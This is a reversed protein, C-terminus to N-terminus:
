YARIIYICNLGPQSTNFNIQLVARNQSNDLVTNIPINVDSNISSQPQLNSTDFTVEIEDHQHPEIVPNFGISPTNASFDYAPHSNLTGYNTNVGLDPYFNTYGTPVTVTGGNIGYSVTRGSNLRPDQLSGAIPTKHVSQPFLNVPPNESWCSALTRGAQGSGFGSRSEIDAWTHGRTMEFNLGYVDGQPGPEVDQIGLGFKYTIFDWPIVGDGPRFDPFRAITEYSGSHRHARLHNRGLKRPAIYVTKAEEGPAITSGKIKGGYGERDNLTFIVDTYVDNFIVPISNDTNDGIFPSIISRAETNTDAARGTGGNAITDFYAEELDMLSKGNLNPLVISGTYTPFSGGLDSNGANYTDGIAQVLLPYDSATVSQGNCFVWGKPINSIPGTWPMITGIAAARASKVEQYFM